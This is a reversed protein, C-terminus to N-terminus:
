AEKAPNDDKKRKKKRPGREMFAVVIIASIAILMAIFDTVLDILFVLIIGNWVFSLFSLIANLICSLM